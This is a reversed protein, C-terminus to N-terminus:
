EALIKKKQLRPALIDMKTPLNDMKSWLGNVDHHFINLNNQEDLKQNDNVSYYKCGTKSPLETYGIQVWVM